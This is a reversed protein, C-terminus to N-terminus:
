VQAGIVGRVTDLDSYARKVGGVEMYPESGKGLIAVVDGPKAMGIARRIAAIRDIIRLSRKSHILGASMQSIIQAPDEFRPNDSTLVVYDSMREAVRAMLPRKAVDRNGGCGIVTILDGQAWERIGELVNQVGDPTHAYDVVVTAGNHSFVQFRGPVQEMSYLARAMEGLGYGLEHCCAFAALVNYVNYRGHLPSAVDYIEDDLNVVFVSGQESPTYNISFVDAPDNIGYTVVRGNYESAIQVGCADDGNVVAVRTHPARFFSRKTAGYHEMDEFFDLHDQSLNTFVAVESVVGQMRKLAIAHASVEMVVTTCGARVAKAFIGQLSIPDPTTLSSPLYEGAVFVGNTGILCTKEGCYRLIHDIIYTTTTKGNTGVVSVIKLKQAPNGYFNAAAISMAARTDRVVVQPVPAELRKETMLAAAGASIAQAWLEHSDVNAGRVCVFLAGESRLTTDCSLGKIEVDEGVVEVVDCGQVVESLRM